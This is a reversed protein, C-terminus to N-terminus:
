YLGCYRLYSQVELLIHDGPDTWIGRTTCEGGALVDIRIRLEETWDWPLMFNGTRTGSVRGLRVRKGSWLAHLTIDDFGHNIVEINIRAEAQSTFPAPRSRACGFGAGTLVVSLLAIRGAASARRGPRVIKERM